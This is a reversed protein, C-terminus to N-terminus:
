EKRIVEFKRPNGKLLGILHTIFNLAVTPYSAATGALAHKWGMCVGITYARTALWVGLSIFTLPLLEAPIKVIGLYYLPLGITGLSFLWLGSFGIISLRLRNSLPLMKQSLITVQGWLWRRRQKIADSFTFPPLIFIKEESNFVSYGMLAAKHFYFSDENLILKHKTNHTYTSIDYSVNRDVQSSMCTGEGHAWLPQGLNTFFNCFIGCAVSREYDLITNWVGNVQPTITGILIDAQVTICEKIFEISPVADDDGQLLLYNSSLKGDDVLNQRLRRAYELARGKYLDECVFDKPVVVVKDCLYETKHTDWEEIIVWTEIPISLGYNKVTEFIKNVSKVNGITPIQFVINEIKKKNQDKHKM